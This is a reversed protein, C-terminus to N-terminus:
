ARAWWRRRLRTRSFTPRPPLPRNDLLAAPVDVTLWRALEGGGLVRAAGSLGAERVGPGHADSALCHALGEELLRRACKATRSGLRGDVSAATLQVVAGARVVEALISPDEQVSPNREPHALVPVVGEIRLQACSNPLSLLWGSYPSELLLLQPNGGLGFSARGAPELLPLRELAIEGGGRVEIAIGEATVARRVQELAESMAEASTPYDDRVHPTGCVMTVGDAAMERAMEVAAPVDVAGDDLGPLIHSHLDIM